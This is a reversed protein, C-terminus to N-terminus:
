WGTSRCHCCWWRPAPAAAAGLPGPIAGAANIAATLRAAVGVVGEVPLPLPVVMSTLGGAGGLPGPVAADSCGVLVGVM